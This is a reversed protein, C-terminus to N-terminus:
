QGDGSVAPLEGRAVRLRLRTGAPADGPDRVIAGDDARAVIAYGRELTAGPGLARLRDGTASAVARQGELRSRLLPAM